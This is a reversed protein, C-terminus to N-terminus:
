RGIAFCLSDQLGSSMKQEVYPVADLLIYEGIIHRISEGPNKRVVRRAKQCTRRVAVVIRCQDTALQLVCTEGTYHDLRSGFLTMCGRRAKRGNSITLSSRQAVFDLGSVCSFEFSCGIIGCRRNGVSMAAALNSGFNLCVYDHSHGLHRSRAHVRMPHCPGRLMRLFCPAANEFARYPVPRQSTTPIVPPARLSCRSAAHRPARNRSELIHPM